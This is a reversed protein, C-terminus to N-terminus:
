GIKKGAPGSGGGSNPMLTLSIGGDVPVDIGAIQSSLPGALFLIANAGEDAKGVKRLPIVSERRENNEWQKPDDTGFANMTLGTITPGPSVTNCRIGDPGWELTIQKILMILAAPVLPDPLDAVAKECTAGLERAEVIVADLSAENFDVLLLEAPSEATATRAAGLAVARGIGSGAGTVLIKM